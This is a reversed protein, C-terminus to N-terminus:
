DDEETHFRKSLSVKMPGLMSIWVFCSGSSLCRELAAFRRPLWSVFHQRLPTQDHLNSLLVYDNTTPYQVLDRGSSSLSSQTGFAAHILATAGVWFDELEEARVDLPLKDYCLCGLFEKGFRGHLVYEIAGTTTTTTAAATRTSSVVPMELPERVAAPSLDLSTTTTTTPHHPPPFM